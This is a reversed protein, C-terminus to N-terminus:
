YCFIPNEDAIAGQPSPKRASVHRGRFICLHNECQREFVRAHITVNIAAHISCTSGQRTTVSATSLCSLVLLPFSTIGQQLSTRYVGHLVMTQQLVQVEPNLPVNHVSANIGLKFSEVNLFSFLLSTDSCGLLSMLLNFGEVQWSSFKSAM